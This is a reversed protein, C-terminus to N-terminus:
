RAEWMAVIYLVVGFTLSAQTVLAGATIIYVRIDM